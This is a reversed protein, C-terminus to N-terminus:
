FAQGQFPVGGGPTGPRPAGGVPSFQRQPPVAPSQPRSGGRMGMPMPPMGQPPPGPGFSNNRPPSMVPGPGMGMGMPGMSSGAYMSPAPGPSMAGPRGPLNFHQPQQQGGMQNAYAMQAARQAQNYQDRQRQDIAAAVAQGGLGHKMQAKERERAEIAGVLGAQPQPGNRNGAVNILPSGTVRAVHEQERASLHSSIEGGSLVAGSGQSSPRQLLDASNSRSHPASGGMATLLEQSGTRRLPPTPTGTRLATLTNGSVSRQHGHAYLPTASAAAARQQVFQEPSLAREGSPSGVRAAGPQWAVRRTNDDSEERLHTYSPGPGPSRRGGPGPSFARPDNGTPPMGGPTPARMPSQTRVPIVSRGFHIDPVAYGSDDTQSTQPAPADGVTRLVGARPREVSEQTESSKRTSAYDPSMNSSADDYHSSSRGTSSPSSPVSDDRRQLSTTRQPLPKRNIPPSTQISPPPGRRAGPPPTRRPGPPPPGMMPPPGRAHPPPGMPPGMGPYGMPPQGMPGPGRYNNPPPRGANPGPGYGPPPGALPSKSRKQQLGMDPVPLGPSSRPPGSPVNTGPTLAERSGNNNAHMEEHNAYTQPQVSPGSPDSQGFPSGASNEGARAMPDDRDRFAEPTLGGAKALQSLTTSSLRSTARRMEPSHYPKQSPKSGAGHAFAPPANVPEPVLGEQRTQVGHPPPMYGTAQDDDSSVREPTSALDSTFGIRGPPPSSRGHGAPPGGLEFSTGPAVVQTDSSNRAHKLVSGGLASPARERNPDPPASDTRPGHQGLSMSRSSRISSADDAFGVRARPPGPQPGFSLRKSSRSASRGHTKTGDEMATMRKGTLEKLQKRWERETWSASGETLILGTVDLIELYGYRKHKPMAFMLSRPDLVSAVLRGPRGYLAFTDWTPFMFRLLMEFGTVAPRTEPMIFVFGETASPPESHITISGEVKLLTSGDILARSQPYIAYASYAETISAIPRAKKKKEAEKKSDYFKIDGKLIPPHSRDYLSRKKMEKQLKQYEKEDPPSIVCWCRRWPVGAGFRVRVWEETKFRTRDMILNINNLTKGKGAILAGTYAEQLTSHEYMALRIGATWQILSHHSNFHLLYRNRGATSISLINQLPQEDNSRTPLSEIMKISADTLNIFKPLVEGEEGAADLEAADWLSLVTGVLQAFCETWTRDPNPKGRTDQDDLKLFYGEQYLKNQHSNLFTFIPQLEPITDENVDMLTPQYTQVMSLPRSTSRPRGTPSATPSEEATPHSQPFEARAPSPPTSEAPLSYRNPPQPYSDTSNRFEKDGNPVPNQHDHSQVDAPPPSSTPTPTRSDKHTASFQSM